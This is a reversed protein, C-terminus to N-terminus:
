LRDGGLQRCVAAASAVGDEHFGDGWYAGCFWTRRRGNVEDYRSRADVAQADVVPHAYDFAAVVKEPDVADERNLTVLVPTSTPLRQLRSVDYTVTAQRPADATLHYNWSARARRRRPLLRDDTHLVARNPQYRVSGLVKAELPDPDGLLALAQDSHTAVVVQDVTCMGDGGRAGVALEVGTPTRWLRRVPAALHLRGEATLPGLVADVYRRAGGTVTRWEAQDGFRLLGHRDFFAAFTRAPMDLFTHPDASWIASGIPVLYGDVFSPSWRGAALLQRLTPSGDTGDGTGGGDGLLRVAGRNFRAIDVLMRWFAPRLANAPQAFVTAASTGRWERGTVEDRVSFSMDAPQTPVHLRAFLRTLLPYARETYVLFGTDAAVRGEPVPVDVTNTHGGPRDEAEFVVVDHYPRLLEVCTTGAIGTGIVAIRM